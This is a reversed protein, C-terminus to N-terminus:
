KETEEKIKKEADEVVKNSKDVMDSAHKAKEIAPQAQEIGGTMVTATPKALYKSWLIAAVAILAIILILAWKSIGKENNM